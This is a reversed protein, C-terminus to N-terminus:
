FEKQFLERTHPKNVTHKMVLRTATLFIEDRGDQVRKEKERKPLGTVTNKNLRSESLGTIFFFYVM